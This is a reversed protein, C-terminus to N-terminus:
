GDAFPGKGSHYDGTLKIGETLDRVIQELQQQGHIAALRNGQNFESVREQAGIRTSVFGPLWKHIPTQNNTPILHKRVEDRTEDIAREVKIFYNNGIREGSFDGLKLGYQNVGWNTLETWSNFPTGDPKTMTFIVSGINARTEEPRVRLTDKIHSFQANQTGQNVHVQTAKFEDEAIDLATKLAEEPLRAVKTQQQLLTEVRANNILLHAAMNATQAASLSTGGGPTIPNFVSALTGVVQQPTLNLSPNQQVLQSAVDLIRAKVSNQIDGVNALHDAPTATPDANAKVFDQFAGHIDSKEITRKIGAKTIAKNAAGLALKAPGSVVSALDLASTVNDFFKQTGSYSTLANMFYLALEPNDKALGNTVKEELIRDAEAPPLHSLAEAQEAINTGQLQLGPIAAVRDYTKAYNYLPVLTKGFDLLWDKKSQAGTMSEIRELHNKYVEQRMVAQETIDALDTVWLLLFNILRKELFTPTSLPATLLAMM